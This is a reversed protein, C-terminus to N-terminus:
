WLLYCLVGYCYSFFISILHLFPMVPLGLVNVMSIKPLGVPFITQILKKWVVEYRYIAHMCEIKFYSLKLPTKGCFEMSTEGVEQWPRAWQSAQMIKPYQPWMTCMCICVSMCMSPFVENIYNMTNWQWDKTAWGKHQKLCKAMHVISYLTASCIYRKVHAYSDRYFMILASITHYLAIHMQLKTICIELNSDM